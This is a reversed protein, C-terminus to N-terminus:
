VCLENIDEKTLIYTGFKTVSRSSCKNAVRIANVIDRDLLYSLGFVSLFIDGAGSVDFVDVSDTSYATGEYRAGRAGLTTVVHSNKPLSTCEEAEKENVKLFCNRFCSLDKKKSDVFVPISRNHYFESLLACDHSRLFGKNYDSVFVADVDSPFLSIDVNRMVQGEGQDVRLLHQNFRVDVFRRKTIQEVNTMHVVECGFQEINKAVNSSMGPVIKKFREKFVPVPAEPSLRTCEGYHYIDECSDGIVLIKLQKLQQIDKLKKM